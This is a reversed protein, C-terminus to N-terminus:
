PATKAAARTPVAAAASFDKVIQDYDAKLRAVIEGHDAAVDQQEAPDNELDFLSM